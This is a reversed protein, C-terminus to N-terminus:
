MKAKNIAQASDLHMKLTPLTKNVWAKLDADKADKSEKEFESIDKKHDDVMMGAYHKDFAKAEMKEMTAAHDKYTNKLSDTNLTIGKASALNKLEDNAASHDKVMMSGFDKIRQNEAKQQAMNGLDVEMLGGKAAKMVFAKDSANLPTSSVNAATSNMNSSNTNSANNNMNNNATATDAASGMNNTSTATTTSDTSSTTDSSNGNCAAFFTTAAIMVIPVYIKKM